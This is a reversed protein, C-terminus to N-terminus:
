NANCFIKHCKQRNYFSTLSTDHKGFCSVIYAFHKPCLLKDLKLNVLFYIIEYNSLFLASGHSDLELSTICSQLNSDM